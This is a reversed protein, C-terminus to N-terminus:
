KLNSGGGPFVTQARGQGKEAWRKGSGGGGLFVVVFVWFRLNGPGAGPEWKGESVVM